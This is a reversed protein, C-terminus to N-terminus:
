IRRIKTGTCLNRIFSVQKQRDSRALYMARQLVLCIIWWAPVSAPTQQGAMDYVELREAAITLKCCANGCGNCCLQDYGERWRWGLGVIDGREDDKCENEEM